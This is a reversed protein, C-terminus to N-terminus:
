HTGVQILHTGVHMGHTEYTGVQTRFSSRVLTILHKLMHELVHNMIHDLMLELHGNYPGRHWQWYHILPILGRVRFPLLLFIHGVYPTNSTMLLKM